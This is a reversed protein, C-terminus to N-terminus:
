SSKVLTQSAKVHQSDFPMRFSHKKTLPGVLDKVTQLIRFLNPIVIM